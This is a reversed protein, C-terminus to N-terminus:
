GSDLLKGLEPITPRLFSGSGEIFLMKLVKDIPKCYVRDNLHGSKPWTVIGSFNWDKFNLALTSYSIKGNRFCAPITIWTKFKNITVLNNYHFLFSLYLKVTLYPLPIPMYRKLWKPNWRNYLKIKLKPHLLIYYADLQLSTQHVRWFKYYFLIEFMYKHSEYFKKSKILLRKIFFWLFIRQNNLM